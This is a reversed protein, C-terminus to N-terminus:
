RAPRALAAAVLGAASVAACLLMSGHLAADFVQAVIAGIEHAIPPALGSLSPPTSNPVASCAACWPRSTPISTSM